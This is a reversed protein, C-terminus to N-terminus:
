AFHFYMYITADKIGKEEPRRDDKIGGAVSLCGFLDYSVWGKDTKTLIKKFFM